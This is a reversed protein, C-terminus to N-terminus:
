VWPSKEALPISRTACYHQVVLFVGASTILVNPSHYEYLSQNAEGTFLSVASTGIITTATGIVVLVAGVLVKKATPKMTHLLYGLVFFVSYGLVIRFQVTDLLATVLN